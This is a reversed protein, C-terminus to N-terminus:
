KFIIFISVIGMNTQGKKSELLFCQTTLSHTKAKRTSLIDPEERGGKGGSVESLSSGGKTASIHARKFARAVWSCRLTSGAVEEKDEVVM